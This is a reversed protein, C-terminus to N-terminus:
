KGLEHSQLPEPGTRQQALAAGITTVAHQAATQDTLQILAPDGSSRNLRVTYTQRVSAAITVGVIIMVLGALMPTLFTGWIIYGLVLIIAGVIALGVGMGKTLIPRILSVTKISSFPYTQGGATVADASLDIGAGSTQQAM